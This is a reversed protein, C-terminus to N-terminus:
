KRHWVTAVAGFLQAVCRFNPVVSRRCRRCPLQALKCPRQRGCAASSQTLRHHAATAGTSLCKGNLQRRHPPQRGLVGAAAAVSTRHDGGGGGCCRRRFDGMGPVSEATPRHGLSLRRRSDGTAMRTPPLQRRRISGGSHRCSGRKRGAAILHHRAAAAAANAPLWRLAIEERGGCGM